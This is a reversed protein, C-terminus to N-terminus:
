KSINALVCRSPQSVQPLSDRFWMSSDPVGLSPFYILSGFIISSTVSLPKTLPHLRLRSPSSSWGMTLTNMGSPACLKWPGDPVVMQILRARKSSSRDGAGLSPFYSTLFCYSTQTMLSFVFRQSRYVSCGNREM